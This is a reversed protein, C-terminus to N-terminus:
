VKPERILYIKKARNLCKQRILRILWKYLM